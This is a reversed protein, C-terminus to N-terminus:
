QASDKKTQNQNPYTFFGIQTYNTIPKFLKTILPQLSHTWVPKQANTIHLLCRRMSLSYRQDAQMNRHVIYNHIIFFVVHLDFTNAQAKALCNTKICKDTLKKTIPMTKKVSATHQGYRLSLKTGLSNYICKHRKQAMQKKVHRNTCDYICQLLGM